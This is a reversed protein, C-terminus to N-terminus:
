RIKTVTKYDAHFKDLLFLSQQLSLIKCPAHGQKGGIMTKHCTTIGLSEGRGCNKLCTSPFSARSPLFTVNPAICLYTYIYSFCSLFEIIDQDVFKIIVIIACGVNKVVRDGEETICHQTHICM